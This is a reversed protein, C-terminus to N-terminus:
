SGEHDPWERRAQELLEEPLPGYEVELEELLDGLLDHRIERGVYRSICGVCTRRRVAEILPLTSSARRGSKKIASMLHGLIGM